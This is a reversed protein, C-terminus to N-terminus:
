RSAGARHWAPARPASAWTRGAFKPIICFSEARIFDSLCHHPILYDFDSFEIPCRSAGARHWAPLAPARPASSGTRGAFNPIIGFSKAWVLLNLDHHLFLVHSDPIEDPCRGAGARHWAPARLPALVLEGAFNM